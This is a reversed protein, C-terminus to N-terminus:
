VEGVAPHRRLLAEMRDINTVHETVGNKGQFPATSGERMGTYVTWDKQSSKNPRRSNKSRGSSRPSAPPTRRGSLM